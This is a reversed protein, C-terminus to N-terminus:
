LLQVVFTFFSIETYQLFKIQLYWDVDKAEFLILIICLYIYIYIIECFLIINGSTM